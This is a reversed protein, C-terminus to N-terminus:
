TTRPTGTSGWDDISSHTERVATELHQQRIESGDRLAHRAADEVFTKGCGPPGHLLVGNVVGIGYEEFAAPDALPRVVKHNLTDLLGVVGGVDAFSRDPDPDVLSEAQM